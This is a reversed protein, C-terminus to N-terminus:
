HAVGHLEQLGRDRIEFHRDAFHTVDGATTTMVMSLGNQRCTNVLYDLIDDRQAPSMGEQLEDVLLLRSGLVLGRALCIM